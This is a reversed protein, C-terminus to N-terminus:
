EVLEQFDEKGVSCLPCFWEEPVEEFATGPAIGSDQDGESPDYVFGCVMCEWPNM